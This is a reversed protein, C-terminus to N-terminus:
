TDTFNLDLGMKDEGNTHQIKRKSNLTVWSLAQQKNINEVRRPDSFQWNNPDKHNKNGGKLILAKSELISPDGTKM